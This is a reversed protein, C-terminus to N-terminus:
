RHALYAKVQSGVLFVLNGLTLSVDSLHTGWTPGLVESVLPRTDGPLATPTVQLWTAGGHSMCQGTYLDPYSVWPTSVTPSTGVVGVVSAGFAPFYPTIVSKGGALAAPNVCLVQLGASGAQGALASVGTGPRGFFSNAPPPEIFSSYAVVCGTETSKHCAPIHAFSGGVSQGIPVTVNGGLLIASVLHKRVKPNNDVEQKLLQILISSGQSHGIFVIGRGHNDHAMYDKFASLVSDYAELSDAETVPVRGIIAAVTLQNYMPAYVRCVQSFRSAQDFAVRTEAPQITLDTNATPEASVTPYVYFCDIPPDKADTTKVVSRQGNAQIVTATLPIECPDSALGPKCLWVTHTPGASSAGASSAGASSAGGSSGTAGATATSVLLGTALVSSVVAVRAWRVV